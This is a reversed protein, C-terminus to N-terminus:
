DLRLKNLELKIERYLRLSDEFRVSRTYREVMAISEWRGQGRAGFNCVFVCTQGLMCIYQIVKYISTSRM